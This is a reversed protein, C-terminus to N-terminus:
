SFTSNIFNFVDNSSSTVLVESKGSINKAWQKHYGVNMCYVVVPISERFSRCQKVFQEGENAGNTVVVCKITEQRLKCEIIKLADISTESGYINFSYKEKMQAFLASNHTDAIKADRWVVFRQLPRLGVIYLPLIQESRKIVFEEFFKNKEKTPQGLKDVKVYHSDCDNHMPKGYYSSLDTVTLQKGLKV